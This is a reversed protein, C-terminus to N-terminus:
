NGKLVRLVVSRDVTDKYKAGFYGMVAPISKDELGSIINRIEEESLMKPLFVELIESQKTINAVEEANGVKEYNEKEQSLEKITKQIITIMDSDTLEKDNGQRELLMWKNMVVGLINRAVSDRNKIAEINLKKIEDIIM